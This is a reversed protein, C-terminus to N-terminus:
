SSQKETLITTPTTQEICTPIPCLDFTFTPDFRRRDQLHPAYDRGVLSHRLTSEKVGRSLLRSLTPVHLRPSRPRCYLLYNLGKRAAEQANDYTLSVAKM